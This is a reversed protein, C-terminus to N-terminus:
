STSRPPTPSTAVTTTACSGLGSWTWGISPRPRRKPVSAAVNWSAPSGTRGPPSWAFRLARKPGLIYHAGRGVLVGGGDADIKRVVLILHRLYESETYRDGLLIGDVFDSWSGRPREDLWAVPGQSADAVEALRQVLDQDFFSLGLKKAALEGVDAGQSGYERSITLSPPAMESSPAARERRQHTWRKVQQEILQERTRM